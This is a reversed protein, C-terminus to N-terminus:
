AAARNHTRQPSSIDLQYLIVYPKAEIKRQTVSNYRTDNQRLQLRRSQVGNDALARLLLNTQARRWGSWAEFIRALAVLEGVSQEKAEGIANVWDIFSEAYENYDRLPLSQTSYSKPSRLLSKQAKRKETRLWERGTDVAEIHDSFSFGTEDLVTETQYNSPRKDRHGTLLSRVWRFCARVTM